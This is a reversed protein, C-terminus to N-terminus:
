SCCFKTRAQTYLLTRTLPNTLKVQWDRSAECWIKMEGGKMFNEIRGKIKRLSIGKHNKKHIWGQERFLKMENKQQDPECRICFTSTRREDGYNAVRLPLCSSFASQAGDFALHSLIEVNLDGPDSDSSQVMLVRRFSALSDWRYDPHFREEFELTQM